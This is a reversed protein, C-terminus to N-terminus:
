FVDYIAVSGLDGTAPLIECTPERVKRDTYGFVSKSLNNQAVKPRVAVELPGFQRM